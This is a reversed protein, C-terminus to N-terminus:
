GVIIVSFPQAMNRVLTPKVNHYQLTYQLFLGTNTGAWYQVYRAKYLKAPWPLTGALLPGTCIM